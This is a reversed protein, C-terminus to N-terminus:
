GKIRKRTYIGVGILGAGLLIITGPEPVSASTASFTLIASEGQTTFIWNGPTDDFGTLGLMGIGFLSLSNGDGTVSAAVHNMDFDYTRGKYDFTWLPAVPSPSLTPSFYFDQFTVATFSPVAAYDGTAGILTFGGLFDIGTATSPTTGGLYSAAGVFNVSGSIQIALASTATFCILAALTALIRKM